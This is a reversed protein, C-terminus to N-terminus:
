REYTAKLTGSTAGTRFGRWKAIDPGTIAVVDGVEMIHGVTATPATSDTTYRIQATELSLLARRAGIDNTPNYTGSTLAIGGATADITVSEHAFGTPEEEPYPM